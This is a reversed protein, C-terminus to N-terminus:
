EEEFRYNDILDEERAEILDMLYQIAEDYDLGESAMIRELRNYSETTMNM